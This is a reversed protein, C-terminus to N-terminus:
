LIKKGLEEGVRDSVQHNIYLHSPQFPTTEGGERLQQASVPAALEGHERPGGAAALGREAGLHREVERLLPHTHSWAM